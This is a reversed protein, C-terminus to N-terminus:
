VSKIFIYIHVAKNADIFLESSSFFIWIQLHHHTNQLFLHFSINVRLCPDGDEPGPAMDPEAAVWDPGIAQPLIADIRSTIHQKSLTSISAKCITTM